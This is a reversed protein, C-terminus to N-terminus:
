ESIIGFFHASSKECSVTNSLPELIPSVYQYPWTFVKVINLSNDHAGNIGHGDLYLGFFPIGFKNIM